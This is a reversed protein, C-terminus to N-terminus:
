THLELVDGDEVIHDRGVQQADFDSHGWMRAYKLDAAIDRHVLRAVDEVTSGTTRTRLRAFPGPRPQRQSLWSYDLDM